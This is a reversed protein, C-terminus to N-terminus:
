CGMCLQLVPKIAPYPTYWPMGQGHWCLLVDPEHLSGVQLLQVWAAWYQQGLREEEAEATGVQAESTDCGASASRAGPESARESAKLSGSSRPPMHGNGAPTNGLHALSGPTAQPQDAEGSARHAGAAASAFLPGGKSGPQLPELGAAAEAAAAGAHQLSGNGDAGEWAIFGDSHDAANWTPSAAGEWGDVANETSAALKSPACTPVALEDPSGSAAWAPTNPWSGEVTCDNAVPRLAGDVPSEAAAPACTVVAALAPREEPTSDYAWSDPAAPASAGVVAEQVPLSLREERAVSGAPTGAPLQAEPLQTPWPASSWAPLGDLAQLPADSLEAGEDEGFLGLPLPASRDFRASLLHSCTRKLKCSVPLRPSMLAMLSATGQVSLRKRLDASAHLPHLLDACRDLGGPLSQSGAALPTEAEGAWAWEEPEDPPQAATQALAPAAHQPAPREATAASLAGTPKGPWAAPAEHVPAAHAFALAEEFPSREAAGPPLAQARPSTGAASGAASGAACFSGFESSAEAAPPGNAFDGFSDSSPSSPAAARGNATPPLVGLGSPGWLQLPPAPLAVPERADASTGNPLTGAARWTAASAAACAPPEHAPPPQGACRLRLREAETERVSGGVQVAYSPPQVARDVSLVQLWLPRESGRGPQVEM